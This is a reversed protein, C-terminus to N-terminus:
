LGIWSGGRGLWARHLIDSWGLVYKNHTLRRVLPQAQHLRLPIIAGFLYTLKFVYLINL